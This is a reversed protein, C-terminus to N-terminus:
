LANGLGDRIRPIDCWMMGFGRKPTPPCRAPTSADVCLFEPGSDDFPTHSARLWTGNDFAVLAHASDIPERWFMFGREFPEEAVLAVTAAGTPCGVRAEVADWVREFPAGVRGCAPEPVASGLPELFYSGPLGEASWGETTGSRLRWWLYGDHCVPGDLVDFEAGVALMTLIRGDLAPAARVRQPLPPDYTVRGRSGITLRPLPVDPCFVAICLPDNAIIRTNGAADVHLTTGRDPVVTVQRHAIGLDPIDVRYTGASLALNSRNALGQARLTQAADYVYFPVRITVSLAQLLDDETEAPIYAGQAARPIERLNQQAEVDDINFGVVHIALSRDFASLQNAIAIPAGGCTEQGDSVLLVEKAGGIGRFDEPVRSLAEAIPTGGQATMSNVFGILYSKDITSIPYQLESPNCENGSGYTRLGVLMGDPLDNIYSRLVIKALQIRTQGSRTSDQMSGSHDFIILLGDQPSPAISKLQQRDVSVCLAGSDTIPGTQANASGFVNPSSFLVLAVLLKRLM